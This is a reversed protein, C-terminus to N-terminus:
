AICGRRGIMNCTGSSVQYPLRLANQSISPSIKGLGAPLPLKASTVGDSCFTWAPRLSEVGAVRSIVSILPRSASM